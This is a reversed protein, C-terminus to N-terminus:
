KWLKVELSESTVVGRQLLKQLSRVIANLAMIPATERIKLITAVVVVLIYRIFNSCYIFKKLHTNKKRVIPMNKPASHVFVEQPTIPAPISFLSVTSIM